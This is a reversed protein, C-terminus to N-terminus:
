IETEIYTRKERVGKEGVEHMCMYAYTYKM